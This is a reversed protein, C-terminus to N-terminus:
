VSAMDSQEAGSTQEVAYESLVFSPMDGEPTRNFKDIVPFFFVSVCRDEVIAFAEGMLQRQDEGISLCLNKSVFLRM